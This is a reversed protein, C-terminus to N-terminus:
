RQTADLTVGPLSPDVAVGASDAMSRDLAADLRDMEDILADVRGIALKRRNEASELEGELRAVRADRETLEARLGANERTLAQQQAVLGRIARELRDLDYRTADVLERRTGSEAAESGDPAPVGPSADPVKDSQARGTSHRSAGSKM